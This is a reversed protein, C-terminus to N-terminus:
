VTHESKTKQQAGGRRQGGGNPGLGQVLPYGRYSAPCHVHAEGGAWSNTAISILVDVNLVVFVPFDFTLTLRNTHSEVDPVLLHNAKLGEDSPLPTGSGSGGIEASDARLLGGRVEQM